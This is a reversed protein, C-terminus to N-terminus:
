KHGTIAMLVGLMIMYGFFVIFAAPIAAFALKILFVVISLFPMEIDIIVAEIPKPKDSM